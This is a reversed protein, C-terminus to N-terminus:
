AVLDRLDLFLASVGLFAIAAIAVYLLPILKSVDAHYRRRRSRAGEYLAIAVHGGDLPLLPILNFIGLSLNIVALLYLVTAAGDQGAQHFLRVVGVPSEFRVNANSSDAAQQSSLMHLYNHIGHFTVLRGLADLTLSSVHVLAGGANSISAALGSHITPSIQIGLFGTPKTAAPLGPASPGAITVKSRDVPIPHLHLVQGDRLVTVDLRQGPHAQIYSSLQDWSAFRHGDVAEIRDGLRFGAAQAPSAGSTFGYIDTLPNNAPIAKLYNGQDGTWFFMAFLLCIAILFHMASGALAVSLRRWVPAQRYTRAEDAPDVVELNNMGIIRCYGGLPLAKVGYETEGRQVSWLRPGFGVFFETVKIGASKATLFHGLEHLLICVLFALVLVVTEGVGAAYGLVVIAVLGVALRILAGRRQDPPLEAEPEDPHHRGALGLPDERLTDRLRRSRDEADAPAGGARAPGTQAPGTQAGPPFARHDELQSVATPSGVHEDGTV